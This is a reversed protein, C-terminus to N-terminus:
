WWLNQRKVSVKTTLM